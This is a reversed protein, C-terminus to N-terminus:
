RKRIPRRPTDPLQARDLGRELRRLREERVTRHHIESAAMPGPSSLVGIPARAYDNQSLPQNPAGTILIEFRDGIQFDRGAPRSANLLPVVSKPTLRFLLWCWFSLIRM